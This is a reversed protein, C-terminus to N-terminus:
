GNEEALTRFEVAYEAVSRVGQHLAFLRKSADRGCVLHDFVKRIKITFASYSQTYPSQREWIASAWKLADGRLIRLSALGCQLLFSRCLGMDGDYRPLSYASYDYVPLLDICLSTITTQHFRDPALSSLGLAKHSIFYLDTFSTPAPSPPPSCLHPTVLLDQQPLPTLFPDQQPLPTLFPDQQPLPLSSPIRSLSPPSSSVMGASPPTLLLGQQPLPTLFPDQQPLPTLFPDQQPLPLSSPIRSLSPPSSSVVSFSPPSSPIGASRPPHPPSWASSPPSSSVM